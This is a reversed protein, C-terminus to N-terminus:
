ILDFNLEELIDSVLKDVLASNHLKLNANITLEDKISSAYSRFNNMIDSVIKEDKPLNIQYADKAKSSQVIFDAINFNDTKYIITGNEDIIEYHGLFESYKLKTRTIPITIFELQSYDKKNNTFFSEPFSKIGNQFCDEFVSQKIDDFAYTEKQKKRKKRMKPLDLREKVMECLGEYIRNLYVKPDLGLAKLVASDLEKRDKQKVEDFIPLIKRTIEKNFNIEINDKILYTSEIDPGYFTLVGDGMNSRGLTEVFLHFISSNLFIKNKYSKKSKSAFVFFTDGALLNNNLDPFVFKKDFFRQILIEYKGKTQISYWYDRNKVSPVDMWLIGSNTKQTEGWNIYDLANQHKLKTLESKSKNCIFIYSNLSKDDIEITETDKPSKIIKKLYEKEINFMLGSSNKYTIEGNNNKTKELYFFENIGTKIGFNINAIDKLNTLKDKCKELIEFYVDPARLYQMWKTAETDETIEDKLTKQNVMRIRMDESDLTQINNTIRFISKNYESSEIYNVISEIQNWRQHRELQLDNYKIIEPLTKKLKIFKVINNDRIKEDESKELVTVVTNVSADDFWPEAWSAILMKIKFHDLFFEKLVTGYAVDLWSNSTIIAFSGNKSLLTATHIFIYTYIDAQGSLRLKVNGENVWKNIQLQREEEDRNKIKEFEVDRIGKIEFLKKYSFLYEYALIKTLQSKYGKVNKEILEQRIFPFNGLIGYFEPINVDIKDFYKGANPPPFPFSSGAKIDFIDKNIVRPFNKFNKAEQRFLNITSLESPFKGIDIGWIRNLLEEHRINYGNIFKLRDYLRILFTGSGCTPDCYYGDKDNVSIGILLDVLNENTFYQGLTHRQEPEIIEEFLEGIVDDPLNAFHYARLESFFDKFIPFAIKPISLEEITNEVFVSQWDKDKAKSFATKLLINLDNEDSDILDPLDDFYRRVTLYFIIKSILGYVYHKSIFKINEDKGKFDYGQKVIYETIINRVSPKGYEKNVYNEFIPLFRDVTNKIFKVFYVKDPKFNSLTGTRDINDIEDCIRSIYAKIKVQANSNLWDNVNSLVSDNETLKVDLYNDGPLYINLTQFDWTIAFKPKLQKAKERFTNLDEKAKFPPKLEIYTHAQKSQRNVWLVIDSFRSKSDVKIGTEVTAEKFPFIYNSRKIVDNFWESIKSSLERENTNIDTM